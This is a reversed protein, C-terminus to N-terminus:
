TYYSIKQTLNKLCVAKGSLKKTKRPAGQSFFILDKILKRKIEKLSMAVFQNEMRKHQKHLKPIFSSLRSCQNLENKGKKLSTTARGIVALRHM